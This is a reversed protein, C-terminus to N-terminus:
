PVEMMQAVSKFVESPKMYEESTSKILLEDTADWTLTADTMPNPANPGCLETLQVTVPIQPVGHAHFLQIRHNGSELRMRKDSLGVRMILPNHMGEEQLNKWLAELTVLDGNLLDGMPSVDRGWYQYVWETPVLEVKGEQALPHECWRDLITM